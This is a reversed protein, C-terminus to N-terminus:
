CRGWWSTSARCWPWGSAGPRGGWRPDGRDLHPHVAHAPGGRPAPHPHPRRGGALSTLFMFLVLEQAPGWTSPAWTRATRSCRSGPRHRLDRHPEARRRRGVAAVPLAAEFSARGRRRWSAPPASPLAPPPSSTACRRGSGAHREPRGARTVFGVEVAEGPWCAPTTARGPDAGRRDGPGAARRRDAAEPSAFASWRSTTSPTSPRWWSPPWRARRRREVAGRGPHRVRRRVDDGLLLIILVPFVFVFFINSRQRLFRLTNAWGITLIKIVADAGERGPVHALGGTVLGFLAIYLAAPFVAGVGGGAALDGLGRLFWAHPTILSLTQGHLRGGPRHPLLSGGLMALVFAIISQM